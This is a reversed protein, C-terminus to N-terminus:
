RIAATSSGIRPGDGHRRRVERFLKIDYRAQPRGEAKSLKNSFETGAVKWVVCNCQCKIIPIDVIQRHSMGQKLGSTNWGAYEYRGAENSLVARETLHNALRM